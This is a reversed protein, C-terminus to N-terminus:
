WRWFLRLQYVGFRVHDILWSVIMGYSTLVPILVGEPAYDISTPEADRDEEM